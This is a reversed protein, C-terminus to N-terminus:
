AITCTPCVEWWGGAQQKYGTDRVLPGGRREIQITYIAEGSSPVPYNWFLTQGSTTYTGHSLRVDIDLKLPVRSSPSTTNMTSPSPPTSDSERLLSIKSSNHSVSTSGAQSDSSITYPGLTAAYHVFPVYIETVLDKQDPSEKPSDDHCVKVQLHFTTSSIDFDM